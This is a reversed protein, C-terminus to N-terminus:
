TPWEGSLARHRALDAFQMRSGRADFAEKWAEAHDGAAKKWRADAANPLTGSAAFGGTGIRLGKLIALAHARAPVALKAAGIAELARRSLAFPLASLSNITLDERKLTVNLFERLREIPQRQRFTRMRSSLDNLVVDLGAECEWLFRALLDAEVADDGDVFLVTDAGTLKAGLARGIDPDVPDPYGVVLANGVERARAFLQESPRGAVIVIEQLPLAELQALVLSSSAESEGACVVAAAKRQLPVPTLDVRMGAAQMFGEAYQKGRHLTQRWAAGSTGGSERFRRKWGEHIAERLGEPSSSPHGRWAAGDNAGAAYDAYASSPVLSGRKAAAVARRRKGKRTVSPRVPRRRSSSRVARRIARRKKRM